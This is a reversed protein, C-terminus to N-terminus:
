PGPKGDPGRYARAQQLVLLPPVESQSKRFSKNPGRRADEEGATSPARKQALINASPASRRTIVDRYM